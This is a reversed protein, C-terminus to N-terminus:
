ITFNLPQVNTTVTIFRTQQVFQVNVSIAELQNASTYTL